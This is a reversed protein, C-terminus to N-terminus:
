WFSEVKNLREDNRRCRWNKIEGKTDGRKRCPVIYLKLLLARHIIVSAIPLVRRFIRKAEQM